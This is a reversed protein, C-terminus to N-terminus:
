LWSSVAVVQRYTIRSGKVRHIDYSYPFLETDLESIACQCTILGPSACAIHPCHALHRWYAVAVGAHCIGVHLKHHDFYICIRGFIAVDVRLKLYPAASVGPLSLLQVATEPSGYEM